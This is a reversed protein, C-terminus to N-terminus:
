IPRNCISCDETERPEEGIEGLVAEAQEAPFGDDNMDGEIREYFVESIYTWDNETAMEVVRHNISKEQRDAWGFSESRVRVLNDGNPATAYQTTPNQKTKTPKMVPNADEPQDFARHNAPVLWVLKVTNYGKRLYVARAHSDLGVFTMSVTKDSEFAYNHTYNGFSLEWESGHLEAPVYGKRPVVEGVMPVQIVQEDGDDETTTTYAAAVDSETDTGEAPTQSTAM